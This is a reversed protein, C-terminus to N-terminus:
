PIFIYEKTNIIAHGLDAWAAREPEEHGLQRHAESQEKIFGLSLEQEQDSPPRALAMRYMATVREHLDDHQEQLTRAWKHCQDHVFPDNMLILSQAPVNSLSRKGATESPLPFDFALLLPSLFNRRVEQYVTRRGHGDLPGSTGPRGRGTMFDTLHVAVPPGGTEPNLSGSTTLIADRVAEANLRKVPRHHWLENMPDISEADERSQSSMGYTRSLVVDRILNKISWDSQLRTALHDLLEPHTPPQGMAGFDDVTAVIGRGMLHHWIRNAMVRSTLPNEPSVLSEALELRGSSESSATASRGWISPASRLAQPGVQKHDGRIFVYEDEPTGDMIALVRVPADIAAEQELISELSAALQDQDHTPNLEDVSGSWLPEQQEDSFRVEDIAIWGDGDDSYEIWATHGKYKGVKQAVHHWQENDINKLCDEFLLPNYENMLFGDIIVRIRGARGKVRHHIFDGDITFSPSRITGQARSSRTGSHILGSSAQLIRDDQVYAQGGQIIGDFAQGDPFWDDLDSDFSEILMVDNDSSHDMPAAATHLPATLSNKQEALERLKDEIRGGPDLYANRRRSSQLYGTLAYYDQTPIPDFKHDHCRACDITIGSFAKGFVGIQNAMRDAEDQRVDVPAHTGQSLFWFGTGPLSDNLSTAPNIRPEPVLDGAVHEILFRDYPVDQNFARIVWDRYRWAHPIPYDFEHGCTEAYRVLDLWHRGWHEGFHESALLEDVITRRAQDPDQQFSDLFEAQVAPSPPLGILDFHIRRLWNSPTTDDAPKLDVEELGALIFHDLDV